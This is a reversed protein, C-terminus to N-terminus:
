KKVIARMLAVPALSACYGMGTPMPRDGKRSNCSGCLVTMNRIDWTGAPMKSKPAIHEITMSKEDLAKCCSTNACRGGQSNWLYYKEQDTLASKRWKSPDAGRDDIKAANIALARHKLRDYEDTGHSIVAGSTFHTPVAPTARSTAPTAPVAYNPLLKKPNYSM